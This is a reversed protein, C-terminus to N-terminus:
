RMSAPQVPQGQRTPAIGMATMAERVAERVRPDADEQLQQMIAAAPLTQVQMKMLCRVCCARVMPAPDEKAATMLASVVQPNNHWRQNTLQEAAWERQSPYDSERLMQLLLVVNNQPDTQPQVAQQYGSTSMAPTPMGYSGYLNVSQAQPIVFYNAPAYSGQTPVYAVGPVGQAAPGMPQMPMAPMGQRPQMPNAVLNPMAQMPMGQMPMGQMLAGQGPFPQCGAPPCPRPVHTYIPSVPLPPTGQGEPTPETFANVTREAPITESPIPNQPGPNTFANAYGPPPAGNEVPGFFGVNPQPAQPVRAIPPAPLVPIPPSTLIPVPMQSPMIQSGSAGIVFGADQSGSNTDKKSAQTVDGASSKNASAVEQKKVKPMVSAPDPLTDPESSPRKQATKTDAKDAHDATRKSFDSLHGLPDDDSTRARPLTV